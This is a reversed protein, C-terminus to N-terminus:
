AYKCHLIEFKIHIVRHLIHSVGRIEPAPEPFCTLLYASYPAYDLIPTYVSFINHLSLSFLIEKVSDSLM